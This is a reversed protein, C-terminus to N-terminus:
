LAKKIREVSERTREVPVTLAFRVYGEGSAGFGNGPTGLVGANELLHSVFGASDFGAPV